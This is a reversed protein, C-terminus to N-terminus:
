NTPLTLHTYSVAISPPTPLVVKQLVPTGAFAICFFAIGGAHRGHKGFSPFRGSFVLGVLHWALGVSVFLVPYAILLEVLSSDSLVAGIAKFTGFVAFDPGVLYIFEVFWFLLGAFFWLLLSKLFSDALSNKEDSPM